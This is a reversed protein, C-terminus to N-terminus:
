GTNNMAGEFAQVALLPFGSAGAFAIEAIGKAQAEPQHQAM